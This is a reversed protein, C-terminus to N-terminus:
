CSTARRPARQRRSPASQAADVARAVRTPDLDFAAVDHGAAVLRECMPLAWTAWDSSVSRTWAVGSRARDPTPRGRASSEDDPGALAIETTVRRVTQVHSPARNAQSDPHGFGDGHGFGDTELALSVDGQHDDVVRRDVRQTPVHALPEEVPDRLAVSSPAFAITTMQSPRVKM